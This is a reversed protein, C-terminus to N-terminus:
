SFDDPAGLVAGLVPWALLADLVRPMSIWKVQPRWM